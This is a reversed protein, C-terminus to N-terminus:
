SPESKFRMLLLIHGYSLGLVLEFKGPKQDSATGSPHAHQSLPRLWDADRSPRALDKVGGPGAARHDDHKRQRRHGPHQECVRGPQRVQRRPHDNVLGPGLQDLDELELDSQAVRPKRLVAGKL